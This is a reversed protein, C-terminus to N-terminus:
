DCKCLEKWDKDLCCQNDRAKCRYRGHFILRLSMDNWEERPFIAMLDQEIKKPDSNSSLGLRNSTRIVHTDVVFGEPLVKIKQWDPLKNIESMSLHPTGRKDLPKSFWESIVVNGVKRGVGPLTILQALTHPVEGNFDTIIKNSAAILNKSKTNNYNIPRIIKVVDEVNAAALDEFSKYKEFLFPTVKNTTEDTTQPSLLVSVFLQFLSNHNLPTLVVPYDRKLLQSVKAVRESKTM